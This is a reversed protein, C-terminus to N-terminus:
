RNIDTADTIFSHIHFYPLSTSHYQCPLVYISPSFGKGTGSPRGYIECTSVESQVLAEATVAGLSVAHPM